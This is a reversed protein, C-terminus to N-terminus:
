GSSDYDWAICDPKGEKIIWVGSGWHAVLHDGKDTDLLKCGCHYAKRRESGAVHDAAVREWAEETTKAGDILEHFATCCQANLIAKM